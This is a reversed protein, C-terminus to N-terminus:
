LETHVEDRRKWGKGRSFAPRKKQIDFLRGGRQLSNMENTIADQVRFAFKCGKRQDGDLLLVCKGGVPAALFSDRVRDPKIERVVTERLSRPDRDERWSQVLPFNNGGEVEERKVKGGM